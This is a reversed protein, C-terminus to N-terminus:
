GGAGDWRVTELVLPGQQPGVSPVALLLQLLLVAMGTPSQGTVRLRLPLSGPLPPCAGRRGHSPAPALELSLPTLRM